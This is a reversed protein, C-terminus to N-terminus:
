GEDIAILRNKTRAQQHRLKGSLSFDVVHIKTYSYVLVLLVGKGCVVALHSHSWGDATGSSKCDPVIFSV